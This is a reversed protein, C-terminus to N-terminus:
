ADVDMVHVTSEFCVIGDLLLTVGRHHYAYIYALIAFILPAFMVSIATSCRGRHEHFILIHNLVIASLIIQDPLRKMRAPM